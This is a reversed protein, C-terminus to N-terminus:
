ALSLFEGELVLGYGCARWMLYDLASEGVGFKVGRNRVAQDIANPFDGNRNQSDNQHVGGM